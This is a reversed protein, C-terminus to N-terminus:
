GSDLSFSAGAERDLDVRLSAASRQSICVKLQINGLTPIAAVVLGLSQGHRTSRHQWPWSCAMRFELKVSPCALRPRQDDHKIGHMQTTHGHTLWSLQNLAKCSSTKSPGSLSIWRPRPLNGSIYAKSLRDATRPCRERLVDKDQGGYAQSFSQYIWDQGRKSSGSVSCRVGDYCYCCRLRQSGALDEEVERADKGRAFPFGTDSWAFPLSIQSRLPWALPWDLLQLSM